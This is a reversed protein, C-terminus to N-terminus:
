HEQGHLLELHLEIAEKINNEIEARDAGASTCGPLEPVYASWGDSSKEYIIEYEM